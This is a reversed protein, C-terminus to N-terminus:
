KQRMEERYKRLLYIEQNAAQQDGYEYHKLIQNMFSLQAYWDLKQYVKDSDKYGYLRLWEGWTYRPIFHSLLFAVDYMRDTLRVSDWDTLYILGSTTVIWNSPHIDGHVITATERNFDPLHDRLDQLIGKLFTNKRLDKHAKKEWTKILDFPNELQYNLQILQNVLRRSMHLRHLISIIQKSGMEQKTLLRGDLWEQACIIDGNPQRKSWLMQPAIQEKALAALLPTTNMKVFVREGNPGEGLYANGSKGKLRSLNYDEIEM